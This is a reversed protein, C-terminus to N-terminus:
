RGKPDTSAGGTRRISVPLDIVVIQERETLCIPEVLNSSLLHRGSASTANISM